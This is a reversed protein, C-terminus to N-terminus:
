YYSVSISATAGAKEDTNCMPKCRVGEPCLHHRDAEGLLRPTHRIDNALCSSRAYSADRAGAAIETHKFPGTMDQGVLKLTFPATSSKVFCLAHCGNGQSIRM